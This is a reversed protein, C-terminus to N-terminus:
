PCRQKIDDISLALFADREKATLPGATPPERSEKLKYQTVPGWRGDDDGDLICLARQIKEIQTKSLGDVVTPKSTAKPISAAEEQGGIGNIIITEAMNGLDATYKNGLTDNGDKIALIALRVNEESPEPADGVQLTVDVSLVKSEEDVAAVVTFARKGDPSIPTETYPKLAENIAKLAVLLNDDADDDPSGMTKTQQAPGVKVSVTASEKASDEIYVTYDGQKLTNTARITLIRGDSLPSDVSLGDAPLTTLRAVYPQKGGSLIIEQRSETGQTISVLPASVEFPPPQDVQCLKLSDTPKASDISEAYANLRHATNMTSHAESRLADIAAKLNTEAAIQDETKKTVDGNGAIGATEEQGGDGDGDGESDGLGSSLTAFDISPAIIGAAGALGKVATSVSELSPQAERVGKMVAADLTSITAIMQPGIGDLAVRLKMGTVSAENASSAIEESTAIISESIKILSNEADEKRLAATKRRVEGVANELTVIKNTASALDTNIQENLDGTIRLPQVALIACNMAQMGALYVLDQNPNNRRQGLTFGLGGLLGAGIIKDPHAGYAALAIATAGLAILGNGTFNNLVTQDVIKERYKKRTIEALAIAHDLTRDQVAKVQDNTPNTFDIYPNLLCGSIALATAGLLGTKVVRKFANPGLM